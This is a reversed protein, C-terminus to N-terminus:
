HGESMIYLKPVVGYTATMTKVKDPIGDLTSQFVEAYYYDPSRVVRWGHISDDSGGDYYPSFSDLSLYERKEQDDMHDWHEDDFAGQYNGTNLIEQMEDYEYGLVLVGRYEISM